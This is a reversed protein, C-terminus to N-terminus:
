AHGARHSTRSVVRAIQERQEDSLDAFRIGM